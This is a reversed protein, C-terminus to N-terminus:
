LEGLVLQMVKMRFIDVVFSVGHSLACAYSMIIVDWQFRGWTWLNLLKRCITMRLSVFSTSQTTLSLVVETPNGGMPIIYIDYILYPRLM